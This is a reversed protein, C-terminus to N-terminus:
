ENRTLIRASRKTGVVYGGPVLTLEVSKAQQDGFNFKPTVRLRLETKGAPIIAPSDLQEYDTGNVGTGGLTFFVELPGNAATAPRTIVFEAPKDETSERRTVDVDIKGMTLGGSLDTWAAGYRNTACFRYCWLRNSASHPITVEQVGERRAGPLRVENAWAQRNTGGDIPGHYVFLATESYGTWILNVRTTATKGTLNTVGASRILPADPWCQFCGMDALGDYSIRPRGLLDMSKPMWDLIAGANIGPSRIPAFQLRYDGSAAQMFLPIGDINGEGAAPKPSTCSHDFAGGAYNAVAPDGSAIRNSYVISNVVSAGYMGGGPGGAYNDAITCNEVTGGYVGGGSSGETQTVNGAILCNRILVSPSSAFVGGGGKGGGSTNGLIRCFLIKGGSAYIGAGESSGGGTQNAQVICNSIVGGLMHVGGGRLHSADSPTSSGDRIICNRVLGETMYIGNGLCYDPASGEDGRGCGNRLTLGDVVAGADTIKCIRPGYRNRGPGQVVTNSANALGGYVGNGFSCVLIGSTVAIQRSIKYTGNSVVVMNYTARNTCAFDVAAPIDTAAKAWTDYPAAAAANTPVVYVMRGAAPATATSLCALLLALVPLRIAPPLHRTSPKM